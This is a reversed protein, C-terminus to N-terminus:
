TKAVMVKEVLDAVDECRDISDELLQYLEKQKIIKIANTEDQFLRRMSEAYIRDGEEEIRNVEIIYENIKKQNKKYQKLARMLKNLIDCASVISDVFSVLYKNADRIQLINIHTAIYDISDTLNEIAKIIEVMDTRDIPTIFAIDIARLCQHVHLDGEHEIDKIEKLEFENIVGDAFASKLKVAANYAIQMGKEFMEYYDVKKRSIKGM